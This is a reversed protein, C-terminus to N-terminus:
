NLSSIVTMNKKHRRSPKVRRAIFRLGGPWIGARSMLHTVEAVDKGEELGGDQLLGPERDDGPVAAIAEGGADLITWGRTFLLTKRETSLGPLHELLKHGAGAGDIRVLVQRRRAAPVQKLARGPVGEHDEFTNSGANGPRPLMDLCERTNICWAALPHFGCGKKWAPAAGAKDSRATILTGDMDIVTWGQLARGAVAIWRFGGPTEGTLDWVRKRARARAQAVRVLVPDAALGPVRRVTSDSPADGPVPKLQGLVEIDAMATAGMAIAVSTSVLTVGRSILPFTGKRTLAADLESTLGAQDALMRLLIAGAHGVLGNGDDTVELAHAWPMDKM